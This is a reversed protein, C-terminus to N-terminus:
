LDETTVRRRRTTGRGILGILLSIGWFALLLLVFFVIIVLGITIMDWIEDPEDFIALLTLVITWAGMALLLLFAYDRVREAGEDNGRGSMVGAVVSVVGFLIAGLLLPLFLSWEV